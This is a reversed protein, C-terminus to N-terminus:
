ADDTADTSGPRRRLLVGVGVAIIAGIAANQVLVAGTVALLPDAFGAFAVLLLASVGATAGYFWWRDGDLAVLAAGVPASITTVLASALLPWYVSLEAGKLFSSFGPLAFVAAVGAVYPVGCLASIALYRRWVGHFAPMRNAQVHAILDPNFHIGFAHVLISPVSNIKRVVEFAPIAAAAGFARLLITPLQDGLTLLAGNAFLLSPALFGARTTQRLRGRALSAFIGLAAPDNALAAVIAVAQGAMFGLITAEYAGIDAALHAAIMFASQVVPPLVYFLLVAAYKRRRAVHHVELLKAVVVLLLVVEIRRCEGAAFLESAAAAELALVVAALYALIAPSGAPAVVTEGDAAGRMLDRLWSQTLYQAVPGLAVLAVAIVAAATGYAAPDLLVLAVLSPGVGVLGALVRIPVLLLLAGNGRLLDRIGRM